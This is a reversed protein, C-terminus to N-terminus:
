CRAAQVAGLQHQHVQLLAAPLTPAAKPFCFSQKAWGTQPCTRKRGKLLHKKRCKLGAWVLSPILQHCANGQQQLIGLNADMGMGTVKETQVAGPAQDTSPTGQCCPSASAPIFPSNCVTSTPVVADVRVIGMSAHRNSFHSQKIKIKEDRSESM